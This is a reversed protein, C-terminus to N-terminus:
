TVQEAIFSLDGPAISIGSGLFSGNDSGGDLEPRRIDDMQARYEDLELGFLGAIPRIPSIWCCGMVPRFHDRSAPFGVHRVRRFAM